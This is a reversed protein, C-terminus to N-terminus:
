FQAITLVEVTLQTHSSRKILTESGNINKVEANAFLTMNFLVKQIHTHTHTHSPPQTTNTHVRMLAHMHTVTKSFIIKPFQNYVPDREVRVFCKKTWFM